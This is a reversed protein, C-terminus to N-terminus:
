RTSALPEAEPLLPIGAADPSLKFTGIALTLVRRDDTRDVEVSTATVRAEGYAHEHRSMHTLRYPNCGEVTQGDRKRCAFTETVRAPASSRATLERRLRGQRGEGPAAIEPEDGRVEETSREADERRVYLRGASANGASCSAAPSLSSSSPSQM